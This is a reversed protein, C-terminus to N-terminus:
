FKFVISYLASGTYRYKLSLETNIFYYVTIDVLSEMTILRVNKIRYTLTESPTRKMHHIFSRKNNTITKIKLDWTNKNGGGILKM